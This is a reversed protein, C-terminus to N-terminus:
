VGFLRRTLDIPCAGDMPLIPTEALRLAVDELSDHRATIFHVRAGFSMDNLTGLLSRNKTRGYAIESMRSREHEVDAAPVGVAGLVRCVADPFVTPLRNAERIPILIPLRSRESVFILAHRHGMHLVNGYWDGLRTSSRVPPEDDFQKLRLLLRQTCRLVVMRQVAYRVRILSGRQRRVRGSPLGVVPWTRPPVDCTGHRSPLSSGAHKDAVTCIHMNAREHMTTVVRDKARQPRPDSRSRRRSRVGASRSLVSVSLRPTFSGRATALDMTAISSPPRERGSYKGLEIDGKEDPRCFAGGRKITKREGRLVCLTM